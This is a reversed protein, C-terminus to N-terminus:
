VKFYKKFFNGSREFPCRSRTIPLPVKLFYSQVHRSHTSAHACRSGLPSTIERHHHRIAPPPKLVSSFPVHWGDTHVVGPGRSKKKGLKKNRKRVGSFTTQPNKPRFSFIISFFPLCFNRESNRHPLADPMSPCSAGGIKTARCSPQQPWSPRWPGDGSRDYDDVWFLFENDGGKGGSEAEKGSSVKCKQAFEGRSMAIFNLANVREIPALKSSSHARSLNSVSEVGISSLGTLGVYCSSGSSSCNPWLAPAYCTSTKNFYEDTPGTQENMPLHRTFASQNARGIPDTFFGSIKPSVLQQAGQVGMEHIKQRRCVTANVQRLQAFDSWKRTSISELKPQLFHGHKSPGASKWYAFSADAMLSSFTSRQFWTGNNQQPSASNSSHAIDLQRVHLRSLNM